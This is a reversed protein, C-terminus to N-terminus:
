HSLELRYLQREYLVWIAKDSSTLYHNDAFQLHLDHKEKNSLRFQTSRRKDSLEFIRAEVDKINPYVIRYDFVHRVLYRLRTNGDTILAGSDPTPPHPALRSGPNYDIKYLGYHDILSQEEEESRIHWAEATKGFDLMLTYFAAGPFQIVFASRSRQAAKQLAADYADRRENFTLQDLKKRPLFNEAFVERWEKVVRLSGPDLLRVVSGHLVIGLQGDSAWYLAPANSWQCDPMVTKTLVRGTQDLRLVQYPMRDATGDMGFALVYVNQKDPSLLFAQAFFGSDMHVPEVRCAPNDTQPFHPVDAYKDKDKAGKGCGFLISFLSMLLIKNFMAPTNQGAINYNQGPLNMNFYM